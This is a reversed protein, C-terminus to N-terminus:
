ECEEIIFELIPLIEEAEEYEDQKIREIILKLDNIIDQKRKAM